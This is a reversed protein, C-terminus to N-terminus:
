KYDGQNNYYVPKQDNKGLNNYILIGVQIIICVIHIIATISDFRITLNADM